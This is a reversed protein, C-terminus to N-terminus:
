TRDIKQEYELLHHKEFNASVQFSLITTPLFLLITFWM